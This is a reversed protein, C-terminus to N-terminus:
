KPGDNTVSIGRKQLQSIAEAEFKLKAGGGVKRNERSRSKQEAMCKEFGATDVDMGIEEAMLQVM